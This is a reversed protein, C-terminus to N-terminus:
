GVSGTWGASTSSYVSAMLKVLGMQRIVSISGSCYSGVPYVLRVSCYSNVGTCALELPLRRGVFRDGGHRTLNDQLRTYTLKTLAYEYLNTPVKEQACISKRFARSRSNAVSSSLDVLLPM